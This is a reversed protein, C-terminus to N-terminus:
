IGWESIFERKLEGEIDQKKFVIRNELFNIHELYKLSNSSKLFEIVNEYENIAHRLRPVRSGSYVFSLLYFDLNEFLELSDNINLIITLFDFRKDNFVSVVVNYILVLDDDDQNEELYSILIEIGKDINGQFLTFIEDSRDHRHFRKFYNLFHIM